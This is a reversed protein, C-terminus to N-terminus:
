ETKINNQTFTPPLSPRTGRGLFGFTQTYFFNNRIQLLPWAGVFPDRAVSLHFFFQIILKKTQLKKELLESHPVFEEGATVSGEEAAPAWTQSSYIVFSLPGPSM